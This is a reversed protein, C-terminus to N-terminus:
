NKLKKWMITCVNKDEIEVKSKFVRFKPGLLKELWDMDDTGSELKVKCYDQGDIAGRKVKDQVVQWDRERLHELRSQMIGICEAYLSM